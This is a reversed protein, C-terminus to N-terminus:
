CFQTSVDILTPILIKQTWPQKDAQKNTQIAIHKNTRRGTHRHARRESCSQESTSDVVMPPSLCVSAVLAHHSSYSRPLANHGNTNGDAEAHKPASTELDVSMMRNFYLCLTRWLAWLGGLEVGGM